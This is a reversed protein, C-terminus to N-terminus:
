SLLNDNQKVKVQLTANMYNCKLQVFNKANERCGTSLCANWLTINRVQKLGPHLTFEWNSLLVLTLTVVCILM